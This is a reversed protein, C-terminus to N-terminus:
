IKGVYFRHAGLRGERLPTLLFQSQGSPIFGYNDDGRGCPRSYFNRRYQFPTQPSKGTAGGAPAHTSISFPHACKLGFVDGRGCPRSYFNKTRAMPCPICPRGERLPTLLFLLFICFFIFFKTRRGERLPTLLFRSSGKCKRKRVADGRGCPRSYFHSSKRSAGHALPRGERLPTLLFTRRCAHIQGLSLTAGGAPAHTSIPTPKASHMMAPTAGGAPAHTSISGMKNANDSMDTAGGAPAHTSIKRLRCSRCRSHDGRGCPRSYFNATSYRLCIRLM